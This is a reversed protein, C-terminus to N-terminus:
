YVVDKGKYTLVKLDEMRKFSEELLYNTSEKRLMKINPYIPEGVRLIIRKKFKKPNKKPVKVFNIRLPIIPVMANQALAFARRKFRNLEPNHRTLEGEPFFHICKGKKLRRTLEGIFMKMQKPTLPIQITGFFRVFIGYAHNFNAPISIFTPVTPYTVMTSMISDDNAVHNCIVIKGGKVKKYNKRGEIRFGRFLYMYLRALPLFLIVILSSFFRRIPRPKLKKLYRDKKDFKENLTKRDYVAQQFMEELRRVAFDIHFNKMYEHYEKSMKLREEPNEIWYDIKSALEEHDNVKFLSNETLGFTQGPASFPAKSLVPVLGTALSELVSIGEVEIEATHVYLDSKKMVEILEDQPYTRILVDLELKKALNELHEKRPGQGAILVRIKDKYKSEAVAKLLVEHRKELSLRGVSLITFKEPNLPRDVEVFFKDLVSNTIPHFINKYGHSKLREAIMESPCHVRDVESYVRNRFFKYMFWALPKGIKGLGAGYTINEPAVHFSGTIPIGMERAIKIAPKALTWPMFFHVIDAGEFAERLVKKDRKAFVMGQKESVKTIFPIKKEEIHYYDQGKLRSVSVVRVTHGFEELKERTRAATISTGNYYEGYADIVYVIIM